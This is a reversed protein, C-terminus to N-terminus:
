SAGVLGGEGGNGGTAKAGSVDDSSVKEIRKMHTGDCLALEVLASMKASPNSFASFTSEKRPHKSTNQTQLNVADQKAM